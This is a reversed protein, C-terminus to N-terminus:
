IFLRTARPQSAVWVEIMEFIGLYNEYIEQTIDEECIVFDKRAM